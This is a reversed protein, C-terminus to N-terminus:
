PGMGPIGTPVMHLNLTWTGGSKRPEPAPGMPVSRGSAGAGPCPGGQPCTVPNSKLGAGEVTHSLSPAGPVPTIPKPLFTLGSAKSTPALLTPNLQETVALGLPAM